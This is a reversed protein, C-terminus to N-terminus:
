EKAAEDEFEPEPEPDDHEPIEGADRVVLRGESNAFRALESVDIEKLNFTLGASLHAARVGFGKVDCSSEIAVDTDILKGQDTQDEAHGHVVRCDLRRDTFLEDAKGIRIVDRSLKVSLRATTLGISIQGYKVPVDLMSTKNLAKAARKKKTATGGGAKARTAVKKKAM